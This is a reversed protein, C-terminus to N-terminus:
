KKPSHRDKKAFVSRVVAPTHPSLQTMARLTWGEDARQQVFGTIQADQRDVEPPLTLQRVEIIVDRM